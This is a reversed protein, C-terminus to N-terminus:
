PTGDDEALHLAGARAQTAAGSTTTPRLASMSRRIRNAGTEDPDLRLNIAVNRTALKCYMALSPHFSSVLGQVPTFDPANHRFLHRHAHNYTVTSKEGAV